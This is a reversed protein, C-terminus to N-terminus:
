DLVCAIMLSNNVRIIYAYDMAFNFMLGFHGRHIDTRIEADDNFYCKNHEVHYVFAEINSDFEPVGEINSIVIPPTLAFASAIWISHTFLWLLTIFITTRRVRKFKM